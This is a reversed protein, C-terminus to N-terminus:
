CQQRDRSNQLYSWRVLDQKRPIDATVPLEKQTFTDPLKIFNNENLESVELDSVVYTPVLKEHSMMKLFINSKRGKLNLQSMLHEACLTDTSGPDKFADVKIVKQGKGTKVKVPVVSLINSVGTGAGTHGCAKPHMVVAESSPNLITETDSNERQKEKNPIQETHLVTPRQKACVSCTLRHRCDKSIPGHQSCGFCLGKEKLFNM